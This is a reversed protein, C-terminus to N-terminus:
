GPWVQRDSGITVDLTLVIRNATLLGFRLLARYQSWTKDLHLPIAAGSPERARSIRSMSSGCGTGFCSRCGPRPPLCREPEISPPFGAIAAFRASADVVSEPLDFARHATKGPAATQTAASPLARAGDQDCSRFHAQAGCGATPDADRWVSRRIARSRKHLEGDRVECVRFTRFTGNAIARQMCERNILKSAKQTLAFAILINRTAQARRSCDLASVM